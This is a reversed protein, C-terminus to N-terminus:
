GWWVWAAPVLLVAGMAMLGAWARWASRVAFVWIVASAYLLFSGGMGALVAETMSVPLALVAVSFLAALAYGGGIAAFCRSLIALYLM